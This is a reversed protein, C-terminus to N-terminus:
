FACKFATASSIWRAVLGQFGFKETSVLCHEFACCMSTKTLRSPRDGNSFYCPLPNLRTLPYSSWRRSKARLGCHRPRTRKGFKVGAEALEVERAFRHAVLCLRWSGTSAGLLGRIQGLLVKFLTAAEEGM